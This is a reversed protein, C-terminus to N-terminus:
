NCNTTLPKEYPKLSRYIVEHVRGRGDKLIASNTYPNAEILEGVIYKDKSMGVSGTGTCIDGLTIEMIKNNTEAGM